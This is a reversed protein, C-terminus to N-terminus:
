QVALLDVHFVLTSGPTIIGTSRNGYGLEAPIVFIAAGGEKLLQLGETWGPM